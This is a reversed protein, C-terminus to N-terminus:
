ESNLEKNLIEDIELDIDAVKCVIEQHPKTIDNEANYGDCIYEGDENQYITIVSGDKRKITQKKM